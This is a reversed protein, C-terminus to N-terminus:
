GAALVERLRVAFAAPDDTFGIHDGPFMTPEIDLQAALARSTRDCLQGTSDEGIGVVVRTGNRRLAAVDPVFSVTPLLMHAYQFHEDALSQEDRDGGVIAEFVPPPLEINAIKLFKAFAGRPDGGLYTAIMDDTQERLQVRDEVLEDLPPEHAIVTSVLDPRTEALALASVAGGSSGLVVAPGADLHAILRALDDGRQQPTSDQDRDDVSSRFIGRPDTTLVMHDAALLEALPTFARGDMPAGILVVLPGWGRVEYHLRAGPVELTSTTVPVTSTDNM